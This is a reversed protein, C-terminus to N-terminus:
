PISTAGANLANVAGELFLNLNTPRIIAQDQLQTVLEEVLVNFQQDHYAKKLQVQVEAFNPEQAPELHGLRVIFFSEETEIIDSNQGPSLTTLVKAPESWRGRVSAPNIMGWHGCDDAHIGKSYRGVVSEFDAGDKLEALARGITARAQEPDDEKPVEILYMERREPATMEAKHEEFYRLLERRTPEEVRPGITQQLHRIITLERRIRERAQEPSLGREAMAKEWRAQRGNYERQVVDRIRQDTFRELFESEQENLRRSAVQYLLLDRAMSRIRDRLTRVVMEHYAQPPMTGAKALLEDRVPGVVEEVTIADENIYLVDVPGSEAELEIPPDAPQKTLNETPEASAAEPPEDV